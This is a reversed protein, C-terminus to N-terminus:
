PHRGFKWATGERVLTLRTHQHSRSDVSENVVQRAFVAGAPTLSVRYQGPEVEALMDMMLVFFGPKDREMAQMSQLDSRAILAQFAPADRRRAADVLAVLAARAQAEGSAEPAAASWAPVGSAWSALLQLALRRQVSRAPAAASKM